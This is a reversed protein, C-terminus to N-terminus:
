LKPNIWTQVGGSFDVVGYPTPSEGLCPFDWVPQWGLDCFFARLRTEVEHDHTEIHVRRVKADLVAGAPEFVDAEAGQIDADILDVFPLDKLLRRLSVARVRGLQSGRDSREDRRRIPGLLREVFADRGTAVGVTMQGYNTFAEGVEFRALGDTGAVAARVLDVRGPDVGNDAIHQSLWRFHQPEAEVAVLHYDHLGRQNLAAAANVTWRGFGAGLEVMTFSNVAATVAELLDIWEFYEEDIPLPPVSVHRDEAPVTYLDYYAARTVVGLWNVDWGGEVRGEWLRFSAFVPHQGEAAPYPLRADTGVPATRRTAARMM